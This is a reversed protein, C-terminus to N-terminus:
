NSEWDPYMDPNCVMDGTHPISSAVVYQHKVGESEGEWGWRELFLYIFDKFIYIHLVLM